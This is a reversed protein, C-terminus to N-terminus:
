GVGDIAECRAVYITVATRIRQHADHLGGAVIGHPPPQEDELVVFSMHTRQPHARFQSPLQNVETEFVPSHSAQLCAIVSAVGHSFIFPSTEPQAEAPEEHGRGALFLCFADEM